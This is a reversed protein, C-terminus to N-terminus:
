GEPRPARDGYLVFAPSIPLPAHPIVKEVLLLNDCHEAAEGGFVRCVAEAKVDPSLFSIEQGTAMALVVDAPHVSWRTLSGWPSQQTFTEAGVAELWPRLGEADDYMVELVRLEPWRERALRAAPGPDIRLFRARLRDMPPEGGRWLRQWNHSGGLGSQEFGGQEDAELLFDADSDYVNHQFGVTGLRGTLRALLPADGEMLVEYPASMLACWGPTAHFGALGWRPVNDGYGYQMPDWQEPTRPPPHVLHRGAEQLLRAVETELRGLDGTRVFAVNLWNGV